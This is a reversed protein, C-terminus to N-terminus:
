GRGTVALRMLAFHRGLADALVQYNMAAGVMDAIEADAQVPQTTPMPEASRVTLGAERLDHASAVGAAAADLRSRVTEFDLRMATAGPTSARAVNVSAVKAQTEHMALALRVAEVTVGHTM